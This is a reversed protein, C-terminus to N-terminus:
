MVSIKQWNKSVTSASDGTGRGLINAALFQLGSSLAGSSVVAGGLVVLVVDVVDVVVVVCSVVVVVCSVVVVDVDVVVVEVDVVVPYKSIATSSSHKVLSV